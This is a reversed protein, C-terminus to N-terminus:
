LIFDTNKSIEGFIKLIFESDLDENANINLYYLHDKNNYKITAEGPTGSFEDVFHIFYKRNSFSQYKTNISSLDIKDKTTQFDMIIDPSFPSSDSFSSFVFVDSDLTENVADTAFLKKLNNNEAIYKQVKNSKFSLNFFTSSNIKHINKSFKTPEISNYGGYLMDQGLGGYIIDNGMAGNIINNFDNGVIIDNGAGGVANEIAVEKAISINKKLGGADSFSGSNLNIRQDQRYGSLDLTDNGGSDWISFIVGKNHKIIYCEQDANSNFGYITNGTRVSMNPPYLQQIAFIDDILPTYPYFSKFDAQTYKESWSSMVTYQLSDELYNAKNWYSLYEPKWGLYDPSEIESVINTHKGPHSLGLTHGIQHVLVLGGNNGETPVLIEPNIELNFFCHIEGLHMDENPLYSFRIDNNKGFRIDSYENEDVEIFKIDVLDAWYELALKAQKKQESTLEEVENFDNVHKFSYTINKKDYILPVSIKKTDYNIIEQSAEYFDYSHKNNKIFGNGRNHNNLLNDILCYYLSPTKKTLKNKIM